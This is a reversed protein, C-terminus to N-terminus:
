PSDHGHVGTLLTYGSIGNQVRIEQILAPLGTSLTDLIITHELRCTPIVEAPLGGMEIQFDLEQVHMSGSIDLDTNVVVALPQHHAAAHTHISVM